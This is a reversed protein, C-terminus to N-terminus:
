KAKPTFKEVQNRIPPVTRLYKYIATLDSESMGSFAVWPM